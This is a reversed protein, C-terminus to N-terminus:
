TRPPYGWINQAMYQPQMMPPPRGYPSVIIPQQPCCNHVGTHNPCCGSNRQQPQSQFQPQPPLLQPQQRPQPICPIPLASQTLQPLAPAMKNYDAWTHEPLNSFAKGSTLLLIYANPHHPFLYMGAVGLFNPSGELFKNTGVIGESKDKLDWSGGGCVTKMFFSGDAGLSVFSPAEAGNAKWVTKLADQSILRNLVAKELVPPLNSWSASTKDHAYYSDYPGLSISLTSLDRIVHPHGHYLYETLPNPLNYHRCLVQGDHDRYSVFYTGQDGLAFEIVDQIPPQKTFLAEVDPPLNHWAWHTPSNFFYGEKVGMVFSVFIPM